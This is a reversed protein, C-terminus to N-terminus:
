AKADIRKLELDIEAETATIGALIAKRILLNRKTWNRRQTDEKKDTKAAKARLALLEEESISVVRKENSM